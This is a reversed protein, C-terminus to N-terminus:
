ADIVNWHRFEHVKKVLLEDLCNLFEYSEFKLLGFARCLRGVADEDFAPDTHCLAFREAM